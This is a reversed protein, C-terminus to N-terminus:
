IRETGLKQQLQAAIEDLLTNVEQATLTREYSTVTFRFSFHKAADGEKQYIDLPQYTLQIEDPRKTAQVASALAEYVDSYPHETVKLTMDQQVQPFRSLPQYGSSQPVSQQLGDLDLEFGASSAPLKFAQLVSSRFEGVIGLLKEGAFVLASRKLDFPKSSAYEIPQDIVKYNLALGLYDAMTDVYLRAQYYPAGNVTEKSATVFSLMNFEKPVDGEFHKKYHTKNMEFIALESVGSKINPHVKELLSPIISLRYYQLDPSIANSLQFADEPKQGVKTLLDKHVFSYTLLENAGLRSLIDRLQKKFVLQENVPTPNITRKPLVLPLKDYGYLRGVEEVVDEPIEIDTRWFPPTVTLGENIQAVEFEVNTLLKIMEEASLQVGLRENVFQVDVTVPPYPKISSAKIDLVESAPKGNTLVDIEHATELLVSANQLPSQGKNFRTVADTFLGYKMATKRISYMDFTAAELIINTTHEDVETDAGGMVGGIGVVEKDTAIVITSDDLTVTKGNLLTITEGKKSQRAILVPENGSRAKVKDYDYAHLPQGTLQMFFNTTDVVNNIPRIGVRTLGAQLWYPSPGVEVNQIALAMLRPVLDPAEVKADVPLDSAAPLSKPQAYWSPSKFAKGEIGAIERAVGLIGFLDPRHTFMKNEIDIVLDDLGYYQKLPTGPVVNEETDEATVELIGSHDDSFGLEHASALMGNSVEGRIDRAELIFPNKDKTAPVTVGPPIWATFIDARANPAGCVVQILGQENRQVDKVAGADDVLCLQLNDANPHKQCSVVKVVVIGDYLPGWEQVEEIAGLQTGIKHLLEDKPLDKIDVNSYYQAWNLSVKM